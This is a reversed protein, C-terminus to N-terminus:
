KAISRAWDRFELRLNMEEGEALRPIFAAFKDIPLTPFSLSSPSDAYTGNDNLVRVVLRDNAYRWIEPVGLRAYIPERATSRSTIDVEVWLDPARHIAPDFRKMAQVSAVENFYFCEDPEGGVGKDEERFTTSGFSKTLIRFEVALDGILIGIAKKLGEHEPLPSM